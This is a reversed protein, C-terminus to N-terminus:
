SCTSGWDGDCIWCSRHRPVQKKNPRQNVWYNSSIWISWLDEPDHREYSKLSLKFDWAKNPCKDNCFRSPTWHDKSTSPSVSSPDLVHKEETREQRGDHEPHLKSKWLATLKSDPYYLNFAKTKWSKFVLRPDASVVLCVGLNSGRGIQFWCFCLSWRFCDLLWCDPRRRLFDLCVNLGFKLIKLSVGVHKGLERLTANLYDM